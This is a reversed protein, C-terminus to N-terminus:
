TNDKVFEMRIELTRLVSGANLEAQILAARQGSEIIEPFEILADSVATIQKHIAKLAELLEEDYNM